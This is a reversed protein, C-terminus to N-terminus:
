LASDTHCAIQLGVILRFTALPLFLIDTIPEILFLSMKRTNAKHAFYYIDILFIIDM